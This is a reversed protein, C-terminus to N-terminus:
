FCYLSLRYHCVLELSAGSVGALVGGRKPETAAKSDTPSSSEEQIRVIYVELVNAAVTILNPVPGISKTSTPWESDLDDAAVAPIRPTFDATSHTIFGSACHEIGTPWHMMKYAAYSM